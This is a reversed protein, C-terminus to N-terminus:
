DKKYVIFPIEMEEKTLGGHMGRHKVMYKNLEYWWVAEDKYPLIVIDGIRNLFRDSIKSNGFMGLDILTKVKYVEAKKQLKVRLFQHVYNISEKKVYLFMDRFSGSPALYNGFRDKKLHPLIEPYEINLYVTNEKKVTTQGHDATILFITDHINLSDIKLFFNDISKFISLLCNKAEISNPGYNHCLEDYDSHYFYYYAEEENQLAHKLKHLGEDLNEFDIKKSGRMFWKAYPGNNFLPYQFVYSNINIKEYLSTKPLFKSADVNLIDKSGAKRYILPSFIGDIYPEYYFWEIVGTQSIPLGTQFTTINSTTTSPFQTTLKSVIGEKVVKTLFKSHHHYKEFSDYGFADIVLLVVKKYKKEKGLVDIPLTKKNKFGFNYLITNPINALNYDEDILSFFTNLKKSDVSKFSNINYV